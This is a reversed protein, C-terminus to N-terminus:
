ENDVYAMHKQRYIMLLGSDISLMEQINWGDHKITKIASTFIILYSLSYMLLYSTFHDTNLAWTFKMWFCCFTSVLPLPALSLGLPIGVSLTFSFAYFPWLPLFVLIGHYFTDHLWIFFSWFLTGLSSASSLDEGSSLVEESSQGQSVKLFCCCYTLLLPLSSYPSPIDLPRPGHVMSTLYVPTSMWKILGWSTNQSQVIWKVEWSGIEEVTFVFLM